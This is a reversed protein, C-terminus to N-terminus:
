IFIFIIQLFFNSFLSFRLLLSEEILTLNPRLGIKAPFFLLPFFLPSWVLLSSLSLLVSDWIDSGMRTWQFFFFFFFTCVIGREWYAEPLVRSIIAHPFSFKLGWEWVMEKKLGHQWGMWGEDPDGNRTAIYVWDLFRM